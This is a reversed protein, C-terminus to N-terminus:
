QKILTAVESSNDDFIVRVMYKGKKLNRVNLEITKSSSNYAQSFVESGIISYISITKIDAQKGEISIKIDAVAPNPSITVVKDKISNSISIGDKSQAYVNLASFSLFLLLLIRKMEIQVFKSYIKEIELIQVLNIKVILFHLV